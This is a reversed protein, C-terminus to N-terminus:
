HSGRGRQSVLASCIEAHGTYSTRTTPYATALTTVCRWTCSRTLGTPSSLRMSPATWVSRLGVISAGELKIVVVTMVLRKWNTATATLSSM